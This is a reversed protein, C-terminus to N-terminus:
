VGHRERPPPVQNQIATYVEIAILAWVPLCPGIAERNIPLSLASETVVNRSSQFRRHEIFRAHRIGAPARQIQRPRNAHAAAQSIHINRAEPPVKGMDHHRAPIRLEYVVTRETKDPIRHVRTKQHEPHAKATRQSRPQQRNCCGSYRCVKTDGCRITLIAPTRNVPQALSDQETGSFSMLRYHLKLGRTVNV